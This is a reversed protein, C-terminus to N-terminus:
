EEDDAPRVDLERENMLTDFDGPALEDLSVTEGAHPWHRGCRRFGQPSRARITIRVAAIPPLGSDGIQEGQGIPGATKEETAPIDIVPADGVPTAPAAVEPTKAEGEPSPTVAAAQAVSAPIDIVPAAVPAAAEKAKAEAKPAASKAGPTRKNM